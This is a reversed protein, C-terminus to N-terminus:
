RHPDCISLAEQERKGLRSMDDTPDLECLADVLHASVPALTVGLGQHGACVIVRGLEDVRGIFPRGDFSAPRIGSWRRIEHWTRLAPCVQACGDVVAKIDRSVTLQQEERPEYTVGAAVRGDARPVLYASRGSGGNAAYIHHNLVYGTAHSRFEVAQGRMGYLKPGVLPSLDRTSLGSALVAMDFSARSGDRSTVTASSANSSVDVVTTGPLISVHQKGGLCELLGNVLDSPELAIEIPLLLCGAVMPSLLPEAELTQRRDLVHTVFGEADWVPVTDEVLSNMEAESLAVVLQGSSVIPIKRGSEASIEDVYREYLEVSWTALSRLPGRCLAESQPTIGGIAAATAGLGVKSNREYVTVAIGAKSLEFAASLGVIGGGVVAVRMPSSM